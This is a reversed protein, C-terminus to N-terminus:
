LLNLKNYYKKYKTKMTSFPSMIVYSGYLCLHFNLKLDLDLIHIYWCTFM